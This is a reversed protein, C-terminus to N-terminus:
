FTHRVGLLYQTQTVNSSAIFNATANAFASGGTYNRGHKSTALTAYLTTRKSLSYEDSLVTTKADDDVAGTAKNKTDYYAVTVTNKASTAYDIGFGAVKHNYEEAGTTAHNSKTDLYNAKVTAAGFKYGVGIFAKKNQSLATNAANGKQNQYGTSLTLPGDAYVAGLSIASNRSQDGAQEGFAYQASLNVKGVTTSAGVANSVFVDIPINTNGPATVTHSTTLPHQSTAWAILGSNTEKLGRPDTAAYALVASTYQKGLTISGASSSLSVNAQRAFLGGWQQAAGSDAALHGELNFNAKLGGGLDETGRFGFISPSLGGSEVATRRLGSSDTKNISQLGLDVTGYVTVSQAFAATSLTALAAAAILHKKM